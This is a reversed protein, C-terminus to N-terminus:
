RHEEIWTHAENLRQSCATLRDATVWRARAEAWAYKALAEVTRPAPPVPPPPVPGECGRLEPVPLRPGDAAPPPVAVACGAMLLLGALAKV